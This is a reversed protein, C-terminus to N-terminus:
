REEVYAELSFAARQSEALAGDVFVWYTGPDLVEELSVQSSTSDECRLESTGDYCQRRLHLVPAYVPGGDATRGANTRLSLAVRSRRQLVLQYVREPGDDVGSCSATFVGRGTLVGRVARNHALTPAGQCTREIPAAPRREVTLSYPAFEGRDASEVVLYHAGADLVRELQDRQACLAPDAPGDCRDVWFMRPNRLDGGLQARVLSRERLEVRIVQDLGGERDGDGCPARVDDSSTLTSAHLAGSPPLTLASACTDGPAPAGPVFVEARLRHASTASVSPASVVFNWVGADLARNISVPASLVGSHACAMPAVREDCSRRLTLAAASDGADLEVQVRAPADLALRYVRDPGATDPACAADFRDVLGATSGEVLVGPRLETAGACVEEASPPERADLELSFEGSQTTKSDVVVFLPGPEVIASAVADDSSEPDHAACAREPAPEGCRRRLSVMVDWAARARARVVMRRALEVRYVLEPAGDTDDADAAACASDLLSQGRRTDGVVTTMPALALPAVCTGDAAARSAVAPANISASWTSLAWSGSGQEARLTARYVGSRPACFRVFAASEGNARGVSARSPDTLSLSLSRLSEVGFAAMTYCRADLSLEITHSAGEALAGEYVRGLRALGHSELANHAATLRTLPSAAGSTCSVAALLLLPIPTADRLKVPPRACRVGFASAAPTALAARSV